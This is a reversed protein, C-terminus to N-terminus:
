PFFVDTLGDGQVAPNVGVAVQAPDNEDVDPIAFAAGLRHKVGAIKRGVQKLGGGLEVAFAHDADGALHADPGVARLVFLDVGAKDLHQSVFQLDQVLGVHQREADVVRFDRGLDVLFQAELVAVEVQPPRLHDVVHAQAAPHGGRRPHEHLFLAEELDLRGREELACRLARAFEEHWAAHMGSLKVGQGLRRLLVLLDEHDSAHFFIELEGAAIAVLIQPGIAM